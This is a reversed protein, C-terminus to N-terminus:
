FMYCKDYQEPLFYLIEHIGGITECYKCKRIYHYNWENVLVDLEKELSDDFCGNIQLDQCNIIFSMETSIHEGTKTTM